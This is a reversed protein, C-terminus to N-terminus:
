WGAGQREGIFDLISGITGLRSPEFDASFDIAFESELFVVIEFLVLSDVLGSSVLNDDDSIATLPVEPRRVGDLFGLLRTRADERTM